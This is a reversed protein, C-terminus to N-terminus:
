LSNQHTKRDRCKLLQEGKPPIRKPNRRTIHEIHLRQLPSLTVNSGLQAKPLVKMPVDVNRSTDLAKGETPLPVLEKKGSALLDNQYKNELTSSIDRKDLQTNSPGNAKNSPGITSSRKLCPHFSSFRLRGTRICEQRAFPRPLKFTEVLLWRHPRMSLVM